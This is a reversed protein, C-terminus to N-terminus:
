EFHPILLFMASALNMRQASTGSSVGASISGVQHEERWAEGGGGGKGGVEVRGGGRGEM